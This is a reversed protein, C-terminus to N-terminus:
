TFDSNGDPARTGAPCPFLHSGTAWLEREYEFKQRFRSPRNNYLEPSKRDPAFGRPRQWTLCFFMHLRARTSSMRGVKAPGNSAPCSGEACVGAVSGTGVIRVVVRSTIRSTM